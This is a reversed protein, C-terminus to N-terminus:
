YQSRWDYGYLWMNVGLKIHDGAVGDVTMNKVPLAAHQVRHEEFRPMRTQVNSWIVAAGKTPPVSLGLKPFKTEGGFGPPVTSLYVFLTYIRHGAASWGYESSTGQHTVYFDGSRYKLVQIYEHNVLDGM